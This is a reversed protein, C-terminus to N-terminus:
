ELAVFIKGLCTFISSLNYKIILMFIFYHNSKGNCNMPTLYILMHLHIILCVQNLALEALINTFVQLVLVHLLDVSEANYFKIICIKSSRSGM